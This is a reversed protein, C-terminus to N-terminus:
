DARGQSRLALVQRTRFTQAVLGGAGSRLTVAGHEHTSWFRAGQRVYMAPARAAGRPPGQCSVVLRARCWRALAGGDLRHSGHHPAMLVDVPEGPCRLVRRLGEGELDGTLLVTHGAHRLRLVMSRANETDAPRWGAPPHLVELTLGGTRLRDGAKLERVPVGRRRLEALVHRVGAAPKDAFTPTMSVQGVAFRDLLDPIGNFHDLDAHSLIVEDIRRIGRNWLYPAIRRVTVDPGSMAGADYLLTHGEPTEVVTCGGHGV